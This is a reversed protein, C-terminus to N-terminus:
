KQGFDIAEQVNVNAYKHQALPTGGVLAMVIVSASFMKGVTDAGSTIAVGRYHLAVGAPMTTRNYGIPRPGIPHSLPGDPRHRPLRALGGSMGGQPPKTASDPM